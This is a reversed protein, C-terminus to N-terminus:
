ELPAAIRRTRLIQLSLSAKVTVVQQKQSLATMVRPVMPGTEKGGSLHQRRIRSVKLRQVPACGGTRLQSELGQVLGTKSIGIGVPDMQQQTFCVARHLLMLGGLRFVLLRNFKFGFVRGHM